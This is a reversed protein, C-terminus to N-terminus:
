YIDKTSDDRLAKKLNGGRRADSKNGIICIWFRFYFDQASPSTQETEQGRPSHGAISKHDRGFGKKQARQRTKQSSVISRHLPSVLRSFVFCSCQPARRERRGNVIRAKKLFFYFFHFRWEKEKRGASRSQPIPRSM